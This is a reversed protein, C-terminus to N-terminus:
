LNTITEGALNGWLKCGGGAQLYSQLAAEMEPVSQWFTSIQSDHEAVGDQWARLGTLSVPQTFTQWDPHIWPTLDNRDQVTYPYDAYYLLPRGLGDAARRVLQHDIHNGLTLPSVIRCKPPLANALQDRLDDVLSLQSEPLPQFLNDNVTILPKGTLPIRRYICDPIAFHRPVAGLRLCSRYDESRRVAAADRHTGWRNHLSRAFPPLPGPPPDGACITWIEVSDGIATREAILGGCSLAADDLHPSLFIWLM